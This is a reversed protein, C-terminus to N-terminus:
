PCSTNCHQEIFWDLWQISKAANELEEVHSMDNPHWKKKFDVRMSLCARLRDRNAKADVCVDGSPPINAKCVGGYASREKSYEGNDRPGIQASPLAMQAPTPFTDSEALRLHRLFVGVAPQGVAPPVCAAEVASASPVNLKTLTLFFSDISKGGCSNVSQCKFVM